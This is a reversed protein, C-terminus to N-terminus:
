EEIEGSAIRGLPASRYPLGRELEALSRQAILDLL